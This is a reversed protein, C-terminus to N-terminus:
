DAALKGRLVIISAKPLQYLTDAGAAAVTSHSPPGDPDAHGTTGGRGRGSGRAPPAGGPPVPDAHWQYEAPGFVVRDVTGSFFRDHRAVPDAFTVRVAHDNDPDKNILLISWQKDPRELAYATVLTHGASDKVDSSVKFLKHTADVPQAWEKTIVQAALYQPTYSTVHNNEDIPLFGGSRRNQSAMYHFYYTGGAGATMMAGVYDALWLGSKVTGAGGDRLDNGETMFFPVDPPLGNDHWAQIVQNVNQPEDYLSSWETCSRNFCPYHEFSFFTFDQLQGHDKLYDVFRRTFSVRGNADAWSDVDAPTGEYSPGGLPAHPVLKHIAKAFQAYLTAYDEPLVRQGDAEEGMEIHSIPYGRKYLYAIENAADEPITYLVAVPIMTPLGRTIGCDFFFDLGIQDGRGYDLDSAAHWPDVSSPWTVTQQRSPLHKVLDTFQGGASLTGVYLENIAYGVCNRKDDAGHTDCTSSSETMWIRLYRVAIPDTVLKLTPTGGHGDAVTGLAFTQWTGKNIGDYFPETEGTWFQVYYRKAYPNAWAIKIANVDTKAGLDIMVWQPHQSDDDGTYARTLYPNTKWYSNLDGDTLRSWGNGDGKTAGRHPLPYAWSHQIKEATPEASGTFYGEQKAANSWTGRANWHWAEIMLETNQRYTVTGWGAGLMEKLVPDTLMRETNKENEQKTDGGRLRDISGGLARPPRFSNVAHSQAADVVIHQAAAAGPMWFFLGLGFAIELVRWTPAASPVGEKPLVLVGGGCPQSPANEPRKSRNHGPDPLFPPKPAIQCPKAPNPHSKRRM